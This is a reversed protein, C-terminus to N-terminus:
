FKIEQVSARVDCPVCLWGHDTLTFPAENEDRFMMRKEHCWDCQVGFPNGFAPNAKLIGAATEKEAGVLDDSRLMKRATVRVVDRDTANSSAATASTGRIFKMIAGKLPIGQVPGTSSWTTNRPLLSLTPKTM